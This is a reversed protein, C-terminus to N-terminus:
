PAAQLLTSSYNLPLSAQNYHTDRYPILGVQMHRLYPLVQEFPRGSIWQVNPHRLLRELAVPNSLNRADGVLLLSTGRQAVESLLDFDLRDSTDRPLWRHAPCADRRKGCHRQVGSLLAVDCGNPIM